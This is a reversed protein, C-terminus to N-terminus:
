NLVELELVLELERASLAQSLWAAKSIFVVHCDKKAETVPQPICFGLFRWGDGHFVPFRSVVWPLSM